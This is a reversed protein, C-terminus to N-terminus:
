MMLITIILSDMCNCVNFLITDYFWFVVVVIDFICTFYIIYQTVFVTQRGSIDNHGGVAVPLLSRM